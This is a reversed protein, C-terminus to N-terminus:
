ARMLISVELPTGHRRQYLVTPVIWKLTFSHGELLCGAVWTPTYHSEVDCLIFLISVYHPRLSKELPGTHPGPSHVIINKLKIDRHLATRHHSKGKLHILSLLRKGPKMLPFLQISKNDRAAM